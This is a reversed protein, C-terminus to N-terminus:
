TGEAKCLIKGIRIYDDRDISELRDYLRKLEAYMEPAVSHLPCFVIFADTFEVRTGEFNIGRTGKIGCGCPLPNPPKTTM